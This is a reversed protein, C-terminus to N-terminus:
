LLKRWNEKKDRRFLALVKNVRHGFVAEIKADASKGL